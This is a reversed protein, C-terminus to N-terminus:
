LINYDFITYDFFFDVIIKVVNKYDNKASLYFHSCNVKKLISTNIKPIRM